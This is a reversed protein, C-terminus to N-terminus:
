RKKKRGILFGGLGAAAAYGLPGISKDKENHNVPITDPYSTSSPIKTQVPVPSPSRTPAPTKSAQTTNAWLAALSYNTDGSTSELKPPKCRSCPRLGRDVAEKLTVEIDSKLYSCGARHYCEGTRTIHVITSENDAWASSFLLLFLLLCAAIRKIRM